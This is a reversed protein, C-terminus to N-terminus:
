ARWVHRKTQENLGNGDRDAQGARRGLSPEFAAKKERVKRKGQAWWSWLHGRADDKGGPFKHTTVTTAKFM